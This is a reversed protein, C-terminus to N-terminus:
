EGGFPVRVEDLYLLPQALCDQRIAQLVEALTAPQPTTSPASSAPLPQPIDETVTRTTEIASTM